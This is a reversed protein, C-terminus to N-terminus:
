CKQILNARALNPLLIQDVWEMNGKVVPHFLDEGLYDHDFAFEFLSQEHPIVWNIKQLSKIRDININNHWEPTTDRKPLFPPELLNCYSFFGHSIKKNELYNKTFIINKWSRWVEATKWNESLKQTNLPVRRYSINDIKPLEVSASTLEEKRDLGSWGVLVLIKAYSNSARSEIEALISNAIYENGAGPYSLDICLPINCRDKVFGPWSAPGDLWITSATFSCGSTILIDFNCYYHQDIQRPWSMIKPPALHKM